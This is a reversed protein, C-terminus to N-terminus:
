RRLVGRLVIAVSFFFGIPICIVACWKGVANVVEISAQREIEKIKIQSEEKINLRKTEEEAPCNIVQGSVYGDHDYSTVATAGYKGHTTIVTDRPRENPTKPAPLIIIDGPTKSTVVSQDSFSYDIHQKDVTRRSLGCASLLLLMSFSFVLYKM